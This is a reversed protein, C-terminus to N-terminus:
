VKAYYILYRGDAKKVLRKKVRKERGAARPPSPKSL